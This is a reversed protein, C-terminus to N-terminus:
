LADYLTAMEPADCFRSALAYNYLPNNNQLKMGTQQSPQQIAYFICICLKCKLIDIQMQTKIFLSM